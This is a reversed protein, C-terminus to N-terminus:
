PSESGEDGEEEEFRHLLARLRRNVTCHRVVNETLGSLEELTTLDLLKRPRRTILVQGLPEPVDTQIHCTKLARSPVRALLHHDLPVQM